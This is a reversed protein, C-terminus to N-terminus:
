LQLLMDAESLVRIHESYKDGWHDGWVKNRLQKVTVVENWIEDKKATMRM